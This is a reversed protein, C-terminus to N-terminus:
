LVLFALFCDVPVSVFTLRLFIKGNKIMKKTRAETIVVTETERPTGFLKKEGSLSSLLNKMMIAIAAIPKFVLITFSILDPAFGINIPKQQQSPMDPTLRTICCMRPIQYFSKYVAIRRLYMVAASKNNFWNM